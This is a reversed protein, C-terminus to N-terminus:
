FPPRQEISAGPLFWLSLPHSPLRRTTQAGGTRLSTWWRDVKVTLQPLHLPCGLPPFVATSAPHSIPHMGMPSGRTLSSTEGTLPPARHEPYLLCHPLLAPSCCSQVQRSPPTSALDPCCPATKPPSMIGGPHRPSSLCFLLPDLGEAVGPHGCGRSCPGFRPPGQAGAPPPRGPPRPISPLCCVGGQAEAAPIWAGQHEGRGSKLM